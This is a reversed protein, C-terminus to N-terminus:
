RHRNSGVRRIQCRRDPRRSNTCVGAVVFCALASRGRSFHCGFQDGQLPRLCRARLTSPAMAVVDKAFSRGAAFRLGRLFTALASPPQCLEDKMCALSSFMRGVTWRFGFEVFTRTRTGAMRAIAHLLVGIQSESSVNRCHRARRQGHARLPPRLTHTARVHCAAGAGVGIAASFLRCTQKLRPRPGPVLVSCSRELTGSGSGSGFDRRRRPPM